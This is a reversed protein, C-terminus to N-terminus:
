IKTLLVAIRNAKSFVAESVTSLSFFFSLLFLM